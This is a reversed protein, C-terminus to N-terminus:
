CIYQDLKRLKGEDIRFDSLNIEVRDEQERM